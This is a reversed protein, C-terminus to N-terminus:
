VKKWVFLFEVVAIPLLVWLQEFLSCRVFPVHFFGLELRGGFPQYLSPRKWTDERQVPKPDIRLEERHSNGRGARESRVRDGLTGIWRGRGGRRRRRACQWRRRWRRV